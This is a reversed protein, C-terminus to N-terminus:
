GEDRFRVEVTPRPHEHDTAYAEDILARVRERAQPPCEIRLHRQGGHRELANAIGAHELHSSVVAPDAGDPVPYLVTPVDAENLREDIVEDRRAVAGLALAVGVGMVVAVVTLILIAGVM